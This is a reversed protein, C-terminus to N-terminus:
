FFHQCLLTSRTYYCEHHQAVCFVVGRFIGRYNLRYFVQSNILADYTRTRSPSGLFIQKSCSVTRLKKIKYRLFFWSGLSDSYCDTSYYISAFSPLIHFIDNFCCVKEHRAKEQKGNVAPQHTGWCTAFYEKIIQDDAEYEFAYCFLLMLRLALAYFSRGKRHGFDSAIWWLAFAPVFGLKM